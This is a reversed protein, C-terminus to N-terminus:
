IQLRCTQVEIVQDYYLEKGQGAHAYASIRHGDKPMAICPCDALQHAAMRIGTNGGSDVSRQADYHSNRSKTVYIVGQWGDQM